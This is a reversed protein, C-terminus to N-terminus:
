VHVFSFTITFMYLLIYLLKIFMVLSFLIFFGWTFMTWRWCNDVLPWDQKVMSGVRQVIFHIDCSKREDM